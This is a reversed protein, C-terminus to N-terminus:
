IRHNIILSFKLQNTDLFSTSSDDQKWPFQSLWNRKKLLGVSLVNQLPLRSLINDTSTANEKLPDRFSLIISYTNSLINYLGKEKDM